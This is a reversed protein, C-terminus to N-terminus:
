QRGGFGSNLSLHGSSDPKTWWFDFSIVNTQNLIQLLSDAVLSDGM